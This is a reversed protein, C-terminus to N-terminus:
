RGHPRMKSIFQATTLDGTFGPCRGIFNELDIPNFDPAIEFDDAKVEVVKKSVLDAKVLGRVYVLSDPKQFLASVRKYDARNYSCKILDGTVIDRIQFYPDDAGKNLLYTAGLISGIYFAEREISELASSIQLKNSQIWRPENEVDNDFLGIDVLEDFDLPATVKSYQILLDLPLSNDDRQSGAELALISEVTRNFASRREAEAVAALENTFIGSGNAFDHTFWKNADKQIGIKEGLLILFKDLETVVQSLKHLPVGTRGKNLWVRLRIRSM